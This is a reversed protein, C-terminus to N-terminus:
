FIPNPIDKNKVACILYLWTQIKSNFYGYQLHKSIAVIEEIKM